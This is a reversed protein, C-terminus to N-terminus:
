GSPTAALPPRAEMWQTADTAPMARGLLYGQAIDCGIDSLVDWTEQDEVGEAVVKLGLNHGVDVVARVIAASTTGKGLGMVFSKDIKVETVPLRHLYALSSYGTGFDDISLGVGIERLRRLLAVAREPDTMVIGETIELILAAAPVGWTQLLADVGEVFLSQQLQHPSLNVAVQVPRGGRSWRRVQRLAQSLIQETLPEMLTTHEAVPVFRDPGIVGRTPHIWRALAEFGVVHGDGIAAKPQFYPVVEERDLAGRLEGVLALRDADYRDQDPSFLLTDVGIRRATDLAIDAARLLTAPGDAHGPYVAVGIVAPIELLHGEIAVSSKTSEAVGAAVSMAKSADAAPLVIAFISDGTFRAVFASTAANRLRAAVERLAANGGRFGFTANIQRFRLLKILLLAVPRDEGAESIARNLEENLFTQNPLETLTDYHALHELERQHEADAQQRAAASALETLLRTREVQYAEIARIVISVFVALTVWFLAHFAALQSDGAFGLVFERYFAIGIGAMTVIGAAILAGLQRFHLAGDFILLPALVPGIWAREPAYLLMAYVILVADASFSVLDFIRAHLAGRVRKSWLLLIVNYVALYLALGVVWGLGISRFFLGYLPLPLMAWRLVFVARALRQRLEGATDTLTGGGKVPASPVARL